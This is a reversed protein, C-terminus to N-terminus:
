SRRHTPHPSPPPAPLTALVRFGPSSTRPGARLSGGMSAVREYMGRLGNGGGDTPDEVGEGDDQVDITIHQPGYSLSVTAHASAGAHKLFNTLAEQVVRYITLALAPPVNGPEGHVVLRARDSTRAVLEPIDELTPTPAYTPREGAEPGARLVGVIRRMEHLAERGTEAITDLAEAAVDPNRAAAARGGEAQVIMVSLSHAVIDHLERAIVARASAEALRGQQEREALLLRYREEAIRVEAGRSEAVERARRGIAYPTLVAGLCAGWSLVDVSPNGSTTNEFWRMPGLLSAFTGIVLVSRSAHGPVWRAVSYAVIPVAILSPSPVDLLVLHLAGAVSVLALMLLPAHRRLTLPLLMALSVGVVRPDPEQTGGLWVFPVAIVVLSLSVALIGDAMWDRRTAGPPFVLESASM